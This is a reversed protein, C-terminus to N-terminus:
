ALTARISGSHADYGAPGALFFKSPYFEGFYNNSTAADPKGDDKDKRFAALDIPLLVPVTSKGIGPFRSDLAANLPAFVSAADGASGPVSKAAEDWDVKSIVFRPPHMEEAAGASAFSIFLLAAACRRLAM